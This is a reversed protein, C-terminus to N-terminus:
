KARSSKKKPKPPAPMLEAMQPSPLIVDEKVSASSRLPPPSLVWQLGGVFFIGVLLLGGTKWIWPANM